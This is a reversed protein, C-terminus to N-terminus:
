LLTRTDRCFQRARTDPSPSCRPSPMRMISHFAKQVDCPPAPQLPNPSCSVLCLTALNQHESKLMSAVASIIENPCRFLTEQDIRDGHTYMLPLFLVGSRELHHHDPALSANPLLLRSRHTARTSMCLLTHCIQKKM